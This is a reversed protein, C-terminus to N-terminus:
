KRDLDSIAEEGSLKRKVKKVMKIFWFVNLATFFFTFGCTIYFLYRPYCESFDNMYM